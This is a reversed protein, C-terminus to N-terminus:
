KNKFSKEKKIKCFMIIWKRRERINLKLKKKEKEICVRKKKTCWELAWRWFDMKLIPCTFVIQILTGQTEGEKNFTNKIKLKIILASRSVEFNTWYHPYIFDM